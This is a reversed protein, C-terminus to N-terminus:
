FLDGIFVVYKLSYKWKTSPHKMGELFLFLVCLVAYFWFM